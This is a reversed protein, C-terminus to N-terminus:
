GEPLRGECSVARIWHRGDRPEPDLWVDVYGARDEIVYPMRFLLGRDLDTPRGSLREPQEHGSLQYYVKFGLGGLLGGKLENRAKPGELLGSRISYDVSRKDLQDPPTPFLGRLYDNAEALRIAYETDGPDWWGGPDAEVRPEAGDLVLELVQLMTDPGVCGAPDGIDLLLADPSCAAPGLGLTALLALARLAV